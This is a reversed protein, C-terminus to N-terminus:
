GGLASPLFPSLRSSSALELHWSFLDSNPIADQMNLSQADKGLYLRGSQTPLM